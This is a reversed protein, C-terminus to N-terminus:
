YIPKSGNLDKIYFTVTGDENKDATLIISDDVAM